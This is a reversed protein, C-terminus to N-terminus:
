LDAKTGCETCFVQGPELGNGCVKCVRAAPMGLPPTHYKAEGTPIVTTLGTINAESLPAEVVRETESVREGDDVVGAMGTGERPPVYGSYVPPSQTIPAPAQPTGYSMPPPTYAITPASPGTSGYSGSGGGGPGTGGPGAGYGTYGGYMPAPGSAVPPAVSTGTTTAAGRGAEVEGEGQFARVLAVVAGIAALAVPYWGAWIMLWQDFDSRYIISNSSSGDLFTFGFRLLWGAFAGGNLVGLLLGLTRSTGTPAGRVMSSGLGYGIVLATLAMIAAVVYFSAEGVGLGGVLRALDDGWLQGWQLSMLVSLAIAGSVYAERRAGRLLGLLGFLVIAVAPLVITYVIDM